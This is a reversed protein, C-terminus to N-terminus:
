FPIETDFQENSKEKSPEKKEKTMLSQIRDALIETSRVKGNKGEFENYRISGDVLILDGKGLYEMAFEATKGFCSINHWSTVKNEGWGDNTALSFKVFHKETKSLNEPDKGIRGVLTVKNFSTM